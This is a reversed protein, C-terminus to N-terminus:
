FSWQESRRGTGNCSECPHWTGDCDPNCCQIPDDCEQLNPEGGCHTCNQEGDDPEWDDWTDDTM